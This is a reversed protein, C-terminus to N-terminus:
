APYAGRALLVVPVLLVVDALARLTLASVRFRIRDLLLLLIGSATGAAILAAAGHHMFALAAALTAGALSLSAAHLSVSREGESSEWTEIASCNCWALTAFFAICLLLPWLGPMRGAAFRSLTPAACGATFLVGVLMEKTGIKRLWAPFSPSSHVGSFYVLAAAALLSNRERIVVPMRHVILFAALAASGIAAPFLTRRHRWHFFHRERLADLRGALTARRADLLRDGLYVSWTGSFLLLAIWPQLHVGAAKAFAFAWVAAVTPADLSALHWFALPQSLAAWRIPTRRVEYVQKLNPNVLPLAVGRITSPALSWATAVRQPFGNHPWPKALWPEYSQM